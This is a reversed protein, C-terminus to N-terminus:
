AGRYYERDFHEFNLTAQRMVKPTNMRAKGGSPADAGSGQKGPSSTSVRVQLNALHEKVFVNTGEENLTHAEVTHKELMKVMNSNHRKALPEMAM